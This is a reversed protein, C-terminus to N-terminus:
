RCSAAFRCVAPVLNVWLGFILNYAGGPAVRQVSERWVQCPRSAGPDAQSHLIEGWDTCPHAHPGFIDFM